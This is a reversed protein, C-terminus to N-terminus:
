SDRSLSTSTKPDTLGDLTPTDLWCLPKRWTASPPKLRKLNSKIAAATTVEGSGHLSVSSSNNNFPNPPTSSTRTADPMQASISGPTGTKPKSATTWHQLPLRKGDLTSTVLLIRGPMLRALRWSQKQPLPFRTNFHTLFARDCSLHDNFSRSALDAMDNKVGAIPGITLPGAQTARQFAALGRLLRGATPAQSRDAMRSTWAVTPTNDSWIGTRVFRLDVEQQLVMYHLLVAAMELDSNTLRGRPNTTSVVQSSIDPPFPVRWVLPRLHLDGSLWVGGAGDACADCYGTYHDDGPVLEKIHTPRRALSSVMHAMDLFAARVDSNKGLGITQPEGRLAKNIPSFLGKVGPMILAVHRIKGVIRRYRKLQVQKKKLIKRIEGVIDTARAETISVTKTDGNVVFGLIEKQHSWQADGRQLKKLSIPDKGGIHGTVDPPPFIAHIGHLAARTIRGLLTGEKNEVAAGIFDDLYVYAGHAPSDNKSRKASKAPHMYHEFCHPPLETKDAVLGQILDRATETAACFYAPSQAWGMQLASPVVIRIPAGPPDPMVYCFNWVEDQEVIMRWFGDSLDIKSLM